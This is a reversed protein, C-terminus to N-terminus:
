FLSMVYPIVYLLHDVYNKKYMEINFNLENLKTFSKRECIELKPRLNGTNSDCSM